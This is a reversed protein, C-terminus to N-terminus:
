RNFHRPWEIPQSVRFMDGLSFNIEKLKVSKCVTIMNDTTLRQEYKTFSVKVGESSKIRTDKKKLPLFVDGKRLIYTVMNFVSEGTRSDRVLIRIPIMDNEVVQDMVPIVICGPQPILKISKNKTPEIIYLNQWDPMPKESP